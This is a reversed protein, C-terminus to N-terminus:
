ESIGINVSTSSIESRPKTKRTCAVTSKEHTRVWLRLATRRGALFMSCTVEEAAFDKEGEEVVVVKEAAAAAAEEEKV